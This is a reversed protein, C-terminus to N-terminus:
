DTLHLAALDAWSSAPMRQAILRYTSAAADPNGSFELALARLYLALAANAPTNEEATITLQEARDLEKLAEDPHGDFLLRQAQQLRATFTRPYASPPLSPPQSPQPQLSFPDCGAAAPDPLWDTAEPYAEVDDMTIGVTTPYPQMGTNCTSRDQECVDRYAKFVDYVAKCIALSTPNFGLHEKLAANLDMILFTTTPETQIQDTIERAHNIQGTLSYAIALRLRFYQNAPNPTTRALGIEFYQIAQAYNHAEMALEAQRWACSPTEPYPDIQTDLVYQVANWAYIQTRMWNCNWNDTIDKHVLIQLGQQNPLKRLGLSVGYPILPMGGGAPAQFRITNNPTLSVFKDYQWTLVELKGYNFHAITGLSPIEGVILLWEPHEDGTIDQIRWTAATGPIIPSDFWPLPLQIIQYLGPERNTQRAVLYNTQESLDDIMELIWEPQKDGDFDYPIVAIAFKWIGNDVQLTRTKSLDIHNERLWGQVLVSNWAKLDVSYSGGVNILNVFTNKLLSFDSVLLETYYRYIIEDSVVWALMFPKQDVRDLTAKTLLLPVARMYEDASPVRLSGSSQGDQAHVTTFALACLLLVLLFLQRHTM